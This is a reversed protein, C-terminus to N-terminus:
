TWHPDLAPYQKDNENFFLLFVELTFLVETWTSLLEKSTYISIQNKTCCQSNSESLAFLSVTVCVRIKLNDNSILVWNYKNVYNELNQLNQEKIARIERLYTSLLSILSSKKGAYFM